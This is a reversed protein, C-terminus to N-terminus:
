KIKKIELKKYFDFHKITEKMEKIVEIDASRMIVHESELFNDEVGILQYKM